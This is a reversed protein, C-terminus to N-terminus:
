QHGVALTDLGIDAERDGLPQLRLAHAQWRAPLPRSLAAALRAVAGPLALAVAVVAVGAAAVLAVLRFAAAFESGRAPVAWLAAGGLALVAGLDCLREVFISALVLAAPRQFRREVSVARLVEGSHPLLSNLALGALVPRALAPVPVDPPAGLLLHWRAIKAVVFLATGALAALAPAGWHGGALVAVVAALSTQRLSLALLLAGLLAGGLALAARSWAGGM